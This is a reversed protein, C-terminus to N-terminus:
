TTSRFTRQRRKAQEVPVGAVARRIEFSHVFDFMFEYENGQCTPNM